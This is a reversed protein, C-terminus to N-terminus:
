SYCLYAWVGDPYAMILIAEFNMLPRFRGTARSSSACNTFQDSLVGNKTKVKVTRILGDSSPSASM